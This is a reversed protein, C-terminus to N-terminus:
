SAIAAAEIVEQLGIVVVVQQKAGTAAVNSRAQLGISLM